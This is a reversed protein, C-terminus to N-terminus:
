FKYMKHYLDYLVIGACVAINLSHKTGYQPLELCGHCNEIAQQTVGDVENGFVIATPQQAPNFNTLQAAEDTQEVAYVCYGAAKLSEIADFSKEVFEWKVSETAGLATKLIDKHPPQATIGTLIIKEVPFADASRFVSGVNLASRVNELVIVLPIKASQRFADLPMRGLEDLKLKKM